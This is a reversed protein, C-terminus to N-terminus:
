MSFIKIYTGVAYAVDFRDMWIMGRILYGFYLVLDFSHENLYYVYFNPDTITTTTKYVQQVYETIECASDIETVKTVLIM